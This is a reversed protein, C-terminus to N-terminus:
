ADDNDDKSAPHQGAANDQPEDGCPAKGMCAGEGCPVQQGERRARAVTDIVDLIATKRVPKTLYGDFGAQVYKDGEEHRPHATLALACVPPLGREKEFSRIASIAAYGDMVPMSIDMFILDFSGSMFAELAERGNQATVTRHPTNKLYLEMLLRNDKADDVVLIRLSHDKRPRASRVEVPDSGPISLPLNITFTTGRGPASEVDISGGMRQVLKRSITLGLGTGPYPRTNGAEAQIFHDFVRDIKDEAIGIGTDEITFTLVCSRARCQQVSAGLRVHGKQTFKVANSAINYLVQRIRLSDGRVLPPVNDDIEALLELGAKRAELGLSEAIDAVMERIRITEEKIVLHEAEIKALDLVDNLLAGLHEGNTLCLRVMERQDPNLDTEQLVEASGIISHLPTRIEHSMQALFDSKARDAAEAAEKAEVLDRTREDVLNELNTKHIRLESNIERFHGYLKRYLLTFPLSFLLFLGATVLARVLEQMLLDHIYSINFDACALYRKGGQSTEPVAVSRFKGWQDQYSSFVTEGTRYAQRFSEPVDEYPYFYWSLQDRAEEETVTPAAFYYKGGQEVLTYLYEFSTERAFSSIKERNVMEEELSISQPSVARDHFDPALMHKLSKAALLLRSDIEAYLRTREQEMSWFVFGVVFAM